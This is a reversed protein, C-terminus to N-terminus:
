GVRQEEIPIEFRPPGIIFPAPLVLSVCAAHRSVVRLRYPQALLVNKAFGNQNVALLAHPVPNLEAAIHFPEGIAAGFDDELHLGGQPSQELAQLAHRAEDLAAASQRM